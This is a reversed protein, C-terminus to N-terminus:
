VSMYSSRFLYDLNVWLKLIFHCNIDKIVVFDFTRFVTREIFKWEEVPLHHLVDCTFFLAETGLNTAPVDDISSFFQLSKNPAIDKFIIDVPYVNEAGVIEQFWNSWYLTGAGFDVVKSVRCKDFLEAKLLRKIREVPLVLRRGWTRAGGLNSEFSV